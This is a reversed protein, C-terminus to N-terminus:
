CKGFDWRFIRDQRYVMQLTYNFYICISMIVDALMNNFICIETGISGSFVSLVAAGVEPMTIKYIVSDGYSAIYLTPIGSLPDFAIGVPRKINTVVTTVNKTKVDIKRIRDNLYDSM